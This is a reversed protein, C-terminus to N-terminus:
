PHNHEFVLVTNGGIEYIHSLRYGKAYQSNLSAALATANLSGKNVDSTYHTATNHCQATAQAAVERAAEHRARQGDLLGM